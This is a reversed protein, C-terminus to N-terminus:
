KTPTQKENKEWAALASQFQTRVSERVFLDALGGAVFGILAFLFLGGCAALVTSELGGAHLLSRALIVGCAVLGLMGAYTRQM